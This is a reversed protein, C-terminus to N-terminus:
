AIGLNPYNLSGGWNDPAVPEAFTLAVADGGDPSAVGRRRMDEKKELALRTLSDYKYGPGCLDGQLADDDPIDAGAVDELWEKAKMWM